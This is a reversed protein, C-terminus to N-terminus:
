YVSHHDIRDLNTERKTCAILHQITKSSFLRMRVIHIYKQTIIITILRFLM